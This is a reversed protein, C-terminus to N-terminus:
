QQREYQRGKFLIFAAESSNEVPRKFNMRKWQLRGKEKSPNRAM